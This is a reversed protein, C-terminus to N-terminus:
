SDSISNGEQTFNTGSNIKELKSFFQISKLQIAERTIKGGTLLRSAENFPSTALRKAPLNENHM